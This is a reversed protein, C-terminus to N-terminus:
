PAGLAVYCIQSGTADNKTWNLTFGNADFSTFDAEADTALSTTDVKLFVKSTRDYGDVNSPSANDASAMASSGEHPGDSAGIGLRAHAGHVTGSSQATTQISSLFVVGPRFGTGAVAQSAPAGGTSKNFSGVKARVGALALSFIQTAHSATSASTFNVTFGSGSMSTFTAEKSIAVSPNDTTMYLASDTRQARSSTTPNSNSSDGFMNAWQGGARDMAGMGFVGNASASPPASVFAGGAYFHLVAEPQFGVNSVARSGPATPATWTVAKASVQPGGIAIYHIVYAASDLNTTWNLTFNTASWATVNAEALTTQDYQVITIARDALRRASSAPSVADRVDMGTSLNTLGDYVGMGFSFGSSPTENTKGATWLILAKPTQGLTHSVTQSSGSTPKTFSGVAFVAGPPPPV